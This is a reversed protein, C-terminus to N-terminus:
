STITNLEHQSIFIPFQGNRTSSIAYPTTTCVTVQIENMTVANKTAPLTIFTKVSGPNMGIFKTCKEVQNELQCSYGPSSSRGILRSERM